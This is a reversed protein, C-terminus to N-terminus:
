DGKREWNNLLPDNTDCMACPKGDCSSPPNYVCTECTYIEKEPEAETNHNEMWSKPMFIKELEKQRENFVDAYEPFAMNPTLVGIKVKETKEYMTAIRDLNREIGELAKLCQQDFYSM